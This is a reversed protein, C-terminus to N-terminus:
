RSSKARDIRERIAPPLYLQETAPHHAVADVCRDVQTAVDADLDIYMTESGHITCLGGGSGGLPVERVEIGMRGLMELLMTLQEAADAM